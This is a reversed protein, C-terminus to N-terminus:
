PAIFFIGKWNKMSDLLYKYNLNLLIWENLNSTYFSSAISPPILSRWLRKSDEYDRLAHLIDEVGNMCRSCEGTLSIRRRQRAANTM